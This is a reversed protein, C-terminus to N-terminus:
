PTREKIQRIREDIRAIEKLRDSRQRIWYAASQVMRERDRKRGQYMADTDFKAHEANLRDCEAQCEDRTARLEDADARCGTTSTYSVRDGDVSVKDCVFEIPEHRTVWEHVYGSPPEYGRRCADCDVEIRTGDGLIMTVVLKGCCIPCQVCVQDRGYGRWWRVTGLEYPIQISGSM